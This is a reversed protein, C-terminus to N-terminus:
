RCLGWAASFITPKSISDGVCAIRLVDGDARAPVAALAFVVLALLVTRLTM